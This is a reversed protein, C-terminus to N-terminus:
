LRSQWKSPKKRAHFVALVIIDTGKLVYFIGFPFREIFTRRIEKHIVRYQNPNREILSLAADVCLLFDNGLGLRCDEYYQFAESLDAEAEKRITLIYPM